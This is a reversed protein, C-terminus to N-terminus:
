EWNQCNRFDSAKISDRQTNHGRRGERWGERKKVITRERKSRDSFTPKIWIFGTASVRWKCVWARERGKVCGWARKGGGRHPCFCVEWEPQQLIFFIQTKRYIILTKKGNNRWRIEKKREMQASIGLQIALISCFLIKRNRDHNEENSSMNENNTDVALDQNSDYAWNQQMLSQHIYQHKWHLSCVWQRSFFVQM